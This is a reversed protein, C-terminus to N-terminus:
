PRTQTRQRMSGLVALNGIYERSIRALRAYSLIGIAAAAVLTVVLVIVLWWESGVNEEFFATALTALISASVVFAGKVAAMLREFQWLYVREIRDEIGVVQAAVLRLADETRIQTM